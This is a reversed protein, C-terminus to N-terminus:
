ERSKFNGTAQQRNGTGESCYRQFNNVLENGQNQAQELNTRAVEAGQLDKKQSAAEFDRMAQSSDRFMKVFGVQYDKLKEEKIRLANMQDAAKESADAMKLVSKLDVTQGQNTIAKAEIMKSESAANNFVEMIKQCQTIKSQSCSTTLGIMTGTITLMIFYQKPFHM